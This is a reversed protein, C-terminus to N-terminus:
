SISIFIRIVNEQHALPSKRAHFHVPLSVHNLIKNLSLNSYFDQLFCNHPSVISHLAGESSHHSRTRAKLALGESNAETEM